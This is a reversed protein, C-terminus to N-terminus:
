TLFDRLMNNTAYEDLSLIKENVLDPNTQVLIKNRWFKYKKLVGDVFAVRKKQEEIDTRM